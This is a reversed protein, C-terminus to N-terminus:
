TAVQGSQLYILSVGINPSVTTAGAKLILRSASKNGPPDDAANFNPGEWWLQIEAAGEDEYYEVKIKHNGSRLTVQGSYTVAVM